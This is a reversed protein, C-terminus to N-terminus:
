YNQIRASYITHLEEARKKFLLPDEEWGYEIVLTLAELINTNIIMQRSPTVNLPYTQTVFGGEWLFRWRNEELAKLTGLNQDICTEIGINGTWTERAKLLHDIAQKVMELCEDAVTHATVNAVHRAAVSIINPSVYDCMRMAHGMYPCWLRLSCMTEEDEVHVAGTKYYFLGLSMYDYISLVSPQKVDKYPRPIDEPNFNEKEPDWVVPPTIRTKAWLAKTNAFREKRAAYDIPGDMQEGFIRRFAPQSIAHFDRSVSPIVLFANWSPKLEETIAQHLYEAFLDTVIDYFVDSPLKERHSLSSRM